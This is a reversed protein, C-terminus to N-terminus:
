EVGFCAVRTLNGLPAAECSYVSVTGTYAPEAKWLSFHVNGHAYSQFPNM